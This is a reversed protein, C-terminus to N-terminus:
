SGYMDAMSSIVDARFNLLAIDKKISSMIVFINFNFSTNYIIKYYLSRFSCYKSVQSVLYYYM